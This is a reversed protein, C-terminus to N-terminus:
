ASGSSKSMQYWAAVFPISFGTILYSALKLGFGAKNKTEFPLHKYVGAHMSRAPVVARSRAIQRLPVRAALLSM